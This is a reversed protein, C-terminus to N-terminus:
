NINETIVYIFDEKPRRYVRQLPVMEQTQDHDYHILFMCCCDRVDHQKRKVELVHADFYKAQEITEQFCCILDGPKIHLCDFADCPLSRRRVANKVNIWEDDEAGFGAFRM